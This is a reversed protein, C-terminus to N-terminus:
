NRRWSNLNVWPPGPEAGLPPAAPAWVPKGSFLDFPSFLLSLFATTHKLTEPEEPWPLMAKHFWASPSLCALAVSVSLTWFTLEDPRTTGGQNSWRRNWRTILRSQSKLHAPICIGSPRNKEAGFMDDNPITTFASPVGRRSHKDEQLCWTGWM